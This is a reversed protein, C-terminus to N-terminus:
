PDDTSEYYNMLFEASLTLAHPLSFLRSPKLLCDIEHENYIETKHNMFSLEILKVEFNWNM